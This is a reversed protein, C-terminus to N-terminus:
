YYIPPPPSIPKFMTTMRNPNPSPPNKVVPARQGLRRGRRWGLEGYRDGGSPVPLLLLLVQTPFPRSPHRGAVALLGPSLLVLLWAVAIRRYM